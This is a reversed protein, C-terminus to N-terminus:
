NQRDSVPLSNDESDKLSRLYAIFAKLEKEDLADVMRMAEEILKDKVAKGGKPNIRRICCKYNRIHKIVIYVCICTVRRRTVDLFYVSSTM